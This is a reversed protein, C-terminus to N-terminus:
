RDYQFVPIRSYELSRRWRLLASFFAIGTSVLDALKTWESLAKFYCDDGIDLKMDPNWITLKEFKGVPQIIRQHIHSNEGSTQDDGRQQYAFARPTQQQQQPTQPSLINIPLFDSASQPTSPPITSQPYSSSPMDTDIASSPPPPPPTTARELNVTTSSLTQEATTLVTSDVETKLITTGAEEANSSITVVEEAHVHELKVRKAKSPSIVFPAEPSASLEDDNDQNDAAAAEEQKMQKSVREAIDDLSMPLMDSLEPASDEKVPSVDPSLAFTKRKMIPKKKKMAAATSKSANLSAPTSSSSSKSAHKRPSRRPSSASASYDIDDEDEIIKKNSMASSSTSAKNNSSVSVSPANSKWVHGSYGIPLDVQLGVLLRGRFYAKKLTETDVNDDNDIDRPIFYNKIKAPGSYSVHFPLLHLSRPSLESTSPASQLLTPLTSMTYVSQILIFAKTHPLTLANGDEEDNDEQGRSTKISSVAQLLLSM